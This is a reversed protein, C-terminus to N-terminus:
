FYTSAASTYRYQYCNSTGLFYLHSLIQNKKEFLYSLYKKFICVQENRLLNNVRKPLKINFNPKPRISQYHPNIFHIDDYHLLYLPPENPTDQGCECDMHPDIVQDRLDNDM